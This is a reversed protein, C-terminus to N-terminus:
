DSLGKSSSILLILTEKMRLSRPNSSEFLIEMLQEFLLKLLDLLTLNQSISLPSEAEIDLDFRVCDM